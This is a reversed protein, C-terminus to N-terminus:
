VGGEIYVGKAIHINLDFVPNEHGIFDFLDRQAEKDTFVDFVQFIEVNEPYCWRLSDAIEYYTSWYAGVAERLPLDFQPMFPEGKVDKSGTTWLDYDKTLWSNITSEKDRKLCIAKVDPFLDVIDEIYQLWSFNVDAITDDIDDFICGIRDIAETLSEKKLVLCWTKYFFHPDIAEDPKHAAVLRLLAACLKWLDHKWPLLYLEHSAM